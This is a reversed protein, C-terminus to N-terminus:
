DGPSSWSRAFIEEAGEGTVLGAFSLGYIGHGTFCSRRGAGSRAAMAHADGQVQGDHASPSLPRGYKRSGQGPIFMAAM